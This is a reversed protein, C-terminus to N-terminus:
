GVNEDGKPGEIWADIAKEVAVRVANRYAEELRVSFREIGVSFIHDAETCEQNGKRRSAQARVRVISEPGPGELLSCEVVVVGGAEIFAMAMAMTKDPM